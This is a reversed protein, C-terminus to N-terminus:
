QAWAYCVLFGTWFTGARYSPTFIFATLGLSILIGALLICSSVLFLFIKRPRPTSISDRYEMMSTLEADCIPAHAFSTMADRARNNHVQVMAFCSTYGYFDSQNVVRYCSCTCYLLTSSYYRSPHLTDIVPICVFFILLSWLCPRITSKFDALAAHNPQIMTCDERCCKTWWQGLWTLLVGLSVM